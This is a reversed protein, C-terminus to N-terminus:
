AYSLGICFFLKHLVIHVYAHTLFVGLSFEIGIEKFRTGQFFKILKAAMIRGTYNESIKLIKLILRGKGIKWFELFIIFILAIM